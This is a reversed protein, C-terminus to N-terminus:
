EEDKKTCKEEEDKKCCKKEDDKKCCKKEGDKKCCKEGDKKCCAKGIKAASVYYGELVKIDVSTAGTVADVKAVKGCVTVKEGCLSVCVKGEEAVVLIFSTTDCAGSVLIKGAEAEAVIATGCFSVEKGVYKTPNAIIDEVKTENCTSGCSSVLIAALAIFMLKKM